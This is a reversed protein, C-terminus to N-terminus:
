PLPTEHGTCTAYSQLWQPRPCAVQHVLCSIALAEREVYDNGVFLVVHLTIQWLTQSKEVPMYGVQVITPFWKM